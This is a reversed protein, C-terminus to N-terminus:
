EIVEDAIALIDPPVTLGLAKATKMNIVLEFKTPVQVPLEGPQEGKLIRDVYSAARHYCDALDVGYSILGGSTAHFRYPYIAPLRYRAVLGIILERHLQSAPSPLVILGANPETALATIARKVDAADHMGAKKLQVNLSPAASEIAHLYQPWSPNQTDLLITVQSVKPSIEQLLQLWKQGVTFEFLTFGTINGGPRSYNELLGLEVPDAIHVFVIPINRTEHSIATIAPTGGTVIVDPISEVLEKALTPRRSADGAGFRVDMQINRGDTWNLEKLGQLLARVWSQAEPDSESFSMLVGLRPVRRLQQARAVQPWAVAAGGLLTMFERRRM